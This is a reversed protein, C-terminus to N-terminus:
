HRERLRSNKLSIRNPTDTTASSYKMTHIHWLRDTSSKISVQSIVLKQGIYPPKTAVDYGVRVVGHGIAWWAGRNM